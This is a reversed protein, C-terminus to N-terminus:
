VESQAVQGISVRRSPCDFSALDYGVKGEARIRGHDAAQLVQELGCRVGADLSEYLYATGRDVAAVRGRLAPEFRSTWCGLISVLPDFAVLLLHDERMGAARSERRRDQTREEDVSWVRM